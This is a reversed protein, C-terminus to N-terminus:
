ENDQYVIKPEAHRALALGVQDNDRDFVTYFKQMFVDGFIWLPGHPKDVDLPMMLARCEEIGPLIDNKIIYEDGKLEYEDEGFYFSLKPASDFGKCNNEVPIKRLLEKLEKTPGTILSTGTDMVAKCPQEKSCIGLSINNLRIDTMEITWYYKDIVPYYNINGIYKSTDIYGFTIQGDENENYSYYFTMINKDLLKKKIISDFVPTSEYASMSPYALGLIGAFKGSNFVDGNENLIEGFRQKPIEINGVNFIDENIEGAINGTGFTVEVGLKLQKYSTSRKSDFARQKKCSLSNCRISTVWLNGSGTDFIVPIEQPPTGINIIGTYQANRFNKLPINKSPTSKISTKKRLNSPKTIHHQMKTIFSILIETQIPTKRLPITCQKNILPQKLITANTISILICFFLIQLFSLHINHQYKM